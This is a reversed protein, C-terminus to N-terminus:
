SRQCPLVSASGSLACCVSGLVCSNNERMPTTKLCNRGRLRLSPFFILLWCKLLPVTLQQVTFTWRARGTPFPALPPLATSTPPTRSYHARHPRLVVALSHWQTHWRHHHDGAPDPAQPTLTDMELKNMVDEYTMNFLLDSIIHSINEYQAISIDM